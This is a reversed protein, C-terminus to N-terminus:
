KGGRWEEKGGRGRGERKGKGMEGAM